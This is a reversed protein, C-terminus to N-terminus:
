RKCYGRSNADDSDRATRGPLILAGVVVGQRQAEILTVELYEEPSGAHANCSVNASTVLQLLRRVDWPMGEGLDANLDITRSM